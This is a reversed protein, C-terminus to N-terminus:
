HSSCFQSVQSAAATGVAVISPITPGSPTKGIGLLNKLMQVGRYLLSPDQAAAAIEEANM